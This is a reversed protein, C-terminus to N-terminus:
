EEGESETEDEDEWPSTDDYDDGYDEAADAAQQKKPRYIKFYWGAAGGIVAVALVLLITGGSNKPQEPEPDPEPEVVPSPEPAKGRCEGMNVACVTCDTNIAGVACKDACSCEPLEGGAAQMAALLDAEDVMNLFYTQYQEGDEDTPKDCDIVIYFTNGGSTQVTIFQKNTAKDYLLDRTVLNGDETFGEGPDVTETPLPEVPALGDRTTVFEAGSRGGQPSCGSQETAGGRGVFDESKAPYGMDGGGAYATVAMGCMLVAACLAATLKKIWKNM